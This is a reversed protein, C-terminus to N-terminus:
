LPALSPLLRSDEEGLAPRLRHPGAKGAVLSDAEVVSSHGHPGFGNTTGQFVMVRYQRGHAVLQRGRDEGLVGRTRILPLNPKPWLWMSRAAACAAPNVMVFVGPHKVSQVASKLRGPAVTDLVAGPSTMSVSVSKSASADPHM